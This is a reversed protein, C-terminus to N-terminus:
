FLTKLQKKGQCAEKYYHANACIGELDKDSYGWDRATYGLKVYCHEELFTATKQCFEILKETKGGYRAMLSPLAGEICIQQSIETKGLQCVGAAKQISVENSFSALNAGLGLYCYNKSSGLLHGCDDFVSSYNHNSVKILYNAQYFYCQNQYAKGLTTCPYYKDNVRVWKSPHDSSTSSTSNEMFAGGWCKEKEPTQTLTNCYDLAKPLDGDVIYMFAHGFGHLCETYVQGPNKDTKARSDSCIDKIRENTLQSVETRNQDLFAEMAGHYIGGHCTFDSEAYVDAISQQRRYLARGLFHTFAHCSFYEDYDYVAELIEQTKYNPLLESTVIQEYCASGGQKRCTEFTKRAISRIQETKNGSLNSESVKPDSGLIFFSFIFLIILISLKFVSFELPKKVQM